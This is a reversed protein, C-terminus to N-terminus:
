GCNAINYSKITNSLISDLIYNIVSNCTYASFKLDNM